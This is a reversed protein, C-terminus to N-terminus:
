VCSWTSRAYPFLQARSGVVGDSDVPCGIVFEGHHGILELIGDESSLRVDGTLIQAQSDIVFQLFQLICDSEALTDLRSRM